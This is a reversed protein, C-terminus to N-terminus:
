GRWYADVAVKYVGDPQRAWLLAFQVVSTHLEGSDRRYRLTSVGRQHILGGGGEVALLELKWDVPQKIRTWYDDIAARGAVRYGGPGLLVADDAYLAAVGAMDGANFREMLAENLAEVQARLQASSESAPSSSSSSSSSTPSEASSDSAEARASMSAPTMSTESAAVGACAPLMLSVCVLFASKTSVGALM